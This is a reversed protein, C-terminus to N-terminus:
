AHMWAQWQSIKQKSWAAFGKPPQEEMVRSDSVQPQVYSAATDTQAGTGCKGRKAPAAEKVKNSICIIKPVDGTEDM